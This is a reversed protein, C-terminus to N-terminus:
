SPLAHLDQQREHLPGASHFIDVQTFSMPWQAMLVSGHLLLAAWAQSCHLIGLVFADLGLLGCASAAAVFVFALMM